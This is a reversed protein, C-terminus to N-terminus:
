SPVLFCRTDGISVDDHMMGDHGINQDIRLERGSTEEVQIDEQSFAGYRKGM